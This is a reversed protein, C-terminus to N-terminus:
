HCVGLGGPIIAASPARPLDLSTVITGKQGDLVLLKAPDSVPLYLFQSDVTVAGAVPKGPLAIRNLARTTGLDFAALELGPGALFVISDLWTPYASSVGPVGPFATVAHPGDMQAVTVTSSLPDPIFVYAGTGSPVVTDTAHGLDIHGVTAGSEADLITLPGVGNPSALIRRGDPLRALSKLGTGALTKMEGTKQASGIDVISVAPAHGTAVYLLGDQGGFMADKLDIFGDLVTVAQSGTLDIIAIRGAATDIAAVRWGNSALTIQRPTVPLDIQRLTQSAAALAMIRPTAGDIAIVQAEDRSILIQTPTIGLDVDTIVQNTRTDIVAVKSSRVGPVFVYQGLDGKPLAAFARSQAAVFAGALFVRRRLSIGNM